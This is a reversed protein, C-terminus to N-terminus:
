RQARVPRKSQTIGEFEKALLEREEKVNALLEQLTSADRNCIRMKFLRNIAMDLTSYFKFPQMVKIPNKESDLGDAERCFDVSGDNNGRLIVEGDGDRTKMRIEFGM